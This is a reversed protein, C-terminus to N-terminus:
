AVRAATYEAGDRTLELYAQELSVRYATLESFPLGALLATIREGTLGTVTLTEPGTLAATAGGATLAAM